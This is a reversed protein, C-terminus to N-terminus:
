SDIKSEPKALTKGGPDSSSKGGISINQDGLNLWGCIRAANKSVGRGLWLNGGPGGIM